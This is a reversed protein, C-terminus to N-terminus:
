VDAISMMMQDRIQEQSVVSIAQPVDRLPTLTKTGSSIAPVQYDSSESVTITERVVAVPLVFERSAYGPKSLVVTEYTQQFGEADIRFTYFGPELTLSFEGITDSVISPAVPRGDGPIATIRAGVIPTRAPDLIKGRVVPQTPAEPSEDTAPLSNQAYLLTPTPAFLAAWLTLSLLSTPGGAM